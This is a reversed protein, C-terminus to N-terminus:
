GIRVGPEPFETYFGYEYAYFDATIEGYGDDVYHYRVACAKEGIYADNMDESVFHAYDPIGLSTFYLETFTDLNERREVASLSRESAFSVALAVGSEDDIALDLQAYNYDDASVVTVMWYIGNLSPDLTVTALMCWSDHIVPEFEQVLGADMYSRLITMARAEAEELSMSAMGEFIELGGDMRGMMALKKFPDYADNSRIHLMVNPITEYHIQGIAADDQFSSLLKPLAAGAAIICAAFLVAAANKWKRM